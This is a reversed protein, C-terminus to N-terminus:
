MCHTTFRSRYAHTNQKENVYNITQLMAKALGVTSLAVAITVFFRLDVALRVNELTVGMMGNKLSLLLYRTVFLEKGVNVFHGFVTGSLLEGVVVFFVYM